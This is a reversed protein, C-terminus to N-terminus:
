LSKEKEAILFLRKYNVTIFSDDMIKEVNRSFIERFKKEYDFPLQCSYNLPDFLAASSGSDFIEIIEQKSCRVPIDKIESCKVSFGSKKFLNEYSDKTEFYTWPTCYSQDLGIFDPVKMTESILDNIEPCWRISSPTQLAFVGESNLINSCRELFIDHNKLWHFVSNCFILDAKRSYNICNVDEVIFEVGDSGYYKKALRIMKESKDIGVVVGDTLKNLKSTVKGSGCGIDLISMDRRINILNILMEAADFQVKSNLFYEYSFKDFSM